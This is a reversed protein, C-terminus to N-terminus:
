KTLVSQQGIHTGESKGDSSESSVGENALRFRVPVSYEVAVKKGRQEGPTWKPMSYIVRIAEDDLLPDVPRVVQVNGISGDERVVFKCAVRGQIGKEAAMAPYNINDAIYKLLSQEGGPFQPMKEVTVFVVDEQEDHDQNRKPLVSGRLPINENRPVGYAVIHIEDLEIRKRSMEITGLNAPLDRVTLTLNSYGVFSLNLTDGENVMLVFRGEADTITGSNTNYVVINVGAIPEKTEENLIRGSVEKKNAVAKIAVPKSEKGSGITMNERSVDAEEQSLDSVINSVREVVSKVKESYSIRDAVAGVNNVVLFLLVLPLVLTYAALKIKPSKKGNIMMIREKLPSINFQNVLTMESPHCALKLLHYQYSKIDIEDQNIVCHDVIFELNKRIEKKLIWAMPNIWCFACIFEAMLIDLSHHQRVHVMEHALVEHLEREDHLDPNMFVWSFFSFPAREYDLRSIVFGEIVVQKSHLRLWVIQVTRFLIRLLLFCAVSIYFWLFSSLFSSPSLTPLDAGLAEAASSYVVIEPLMNKYSMAMDAMTANHVMWHSFDMLPYLVSLMLFGQLLYRRMLFFTDRRYFARYVLCFIGIALNVKFLYIMTNM